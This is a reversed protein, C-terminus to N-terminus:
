GAIRVKVVVKRVRDRGGAMCGPKHGDAPYFVAFSGPELLVSSSAEPDHHFAVDRAADYPSEALLRGAPAHLVRERGAAIFQIDIHDRHTEFRKATAPATDYSQVLAVVREGEIPYRGDPTDPALTELYRFGAALGGQVERYLKWNALTDVIM